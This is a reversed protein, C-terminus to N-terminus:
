KDHHIQNLLHHELIIYCFLLLFVFNSSKVRIQTPPSKVEEVVVLVVLENERLLEFVTFATVRSNQLMWYCEILSMREVNPTWLEGWDGSILCFESPLIKLKWIETWDRIFSFQWLELVLSAISMFSPGTVLSSLLFLVLGFFNSSSTMNPFQSTMTMKRIKLWNPATRLGSEPCLTQM